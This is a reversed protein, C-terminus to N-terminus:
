PPIKGFRCEQSTKRVVYHTSPPNRFSKVSDRRTLPLGNDSVGKRIQGCSIDFGGQFVKM